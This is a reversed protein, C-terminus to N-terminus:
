TLGYDMEFIADLLPAHRVQGFRCDRIQDALQQWEPETGGYREQLSALPIHETSRETTDRNYEIPKTGNSVNFRARLADMILNQPEHKLGQVVNGCYLESREALTMRRFKSATVGLIRASLDGKSAGLGRFIAGFNRANVRKGSSALLPSYKLFQTEAPSSRWDITIDHGVAAAAAELLCERENQDMDDFTKDTFGSNAYCIHVYMSVSILYSAIHNVVTTEPCGSGQFIQVPKVVLHEKRNSPNRITIKERLRSFQTGVFKGFGCLHMYIGLVYFMAFTNGADCSSIDTDFYLIEGSSTVYTSSCDDSFIRTHLGHTPITGDFDQTEDLSKFIEISFTGSASLGWSELLPTVSPTLDYLGCLVQKVGDYIWGAYLISRGYSVYLRGHKGPKALENKFKAEVPDRIPLEYSHGAEWAIEEYWKQYLKAKPFNPRTVYRLRALGAIMYYCAYKHVRAQYVYVSAAGLFLATAPGYTIYPSVWYVFLVIDPANPRPIMTSGVATFPYIFDYLMVALARHNTYISAQVLLIALVLLARLLTHVRSFRAKVGTLLEVGISRSIAAVPPNSPDIETLLHPVLTETTAAKALIRATLKPDNSVQKLPLKLGRVGLHLVLAAQQARLNDDDDRAKYLRSLAKSVNEGSADLQVFDKDGVIRQQVSRYLKPYPNHPTDFTGSICHPNKEDDRNYGVTKVVRFQENNTLNRPVNDTAGYDRYFSQHDIDQGLSKVFDQADLTTPEVYTRKGTDRSRHSIMACMAESLMAEQRGYVLSCYYHVTDTLLPQTLSPLMKVGTAIFARINSVNLTPNPFRQELVSLLHVSIYRTHAPYLVTDVTFAPSVRMEFAARPKCVDDDDDTYEYCGPSLEIWGNLEQPLADSYLVEWPHGDHDYFKGNGRDSVLLGTNTLGYFKKNGERAIVVKRLVPADEEDDTEDYKADSSAPVVAAKGFAAFAAEIKQSTSTVRNSSSTLSL